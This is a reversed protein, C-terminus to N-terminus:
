NPASGSFINGKRVSGITDNPKSAFSVTILSTKRFTARNLAPSLWDIDGAAVNDLNADRLTGFSFNM